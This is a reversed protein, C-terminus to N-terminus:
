LQLTTPSELECTAFTVRPNTLSPKSTRVSRSVGFPHPSRHTYHAGRM